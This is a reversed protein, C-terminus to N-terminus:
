AAGGPVDAGAARRREGAARRAEADAEVAVVLAAAEQTLDIGVPCWAICRGCGVCGSTGFQEWWTGLKHTLWQRYRAAASTRVSGGHIYSFSLTFCSDWTRVREAEAGTLDTVDEVTTCFCTPCVQTCNACSLCREAVREWQPLELGRALADRVPEVDLSRGMTAAAAAVAERAADAETARADRLPLVELLERGRDSGARVVFGHRDTGLVETLALDFGETAGPGTGFSACFCTEAAETCEVAVVLAARRRAAYGPDVHTGGMLVRDQVAIAAVDCPRVGILALPRGPADPGDIELGGREDRRARMLRVRPPHLLQKWAHAGVRHGFIRERQPDDEDRRRMRYRGPGPEDVWGRPLDAASRLPGLELTGGQVRPGMPQYGRESLVELLRPLADADLWGPDRTM